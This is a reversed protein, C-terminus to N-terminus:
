ESIIRTKVFRHVLLAIGFFVLGFLTFFPMFAAGPVFYILDAIIGLALGAPPLFLSAAFMFALSVQWPFIFLSILASLLVLIRIM